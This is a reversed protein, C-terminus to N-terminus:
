EEFVFQSKWTDIAKQDLGTIQTDWESQIKGELDKMNNRSLYPISFHKNIEEARYDIGIIISRCKHQLAFIGGHLRNGIYDMKEKSLVKSYEEVNAGVIRIEPNTTITRMYALDDITQPWFYVENYNNLIVDVMMKDYEYDAQYSTLTFVVREGKKTSIERCFDETLGWLTPCGTNVAKIGMDELMIRTAEDRVSHIYNRNLVQKYLLKSYWTTKVSNKGIGVGLCIAGQQIKTNGLFMNWAPSPRLMNTYLLNTGCVLKYDVNYYYNCRKSLLRQWWSFLPTHTPMKIIYNKEYLEPWNKKISYQIIEDGCNLTAISPDFLLIRKM